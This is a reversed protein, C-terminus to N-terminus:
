PLTLRANQEPADALRYDTFSVKEGVPRNRVMMIKVMGNVDVESPLWLGDAVRTQQYFIKAGEAIRAMVWGIAVTDVVKANAKTWRVDQKDIWLTANIKSFLKSKQDKPQYGPKPTCKVVYNPRGNVTEEPLLEFDFASPVERLFRRNNEYEALKRQQAEPTAHEAVFKKYKEDEKRQQDPPLPEGNRTLVKEFPMGGVVTIQSVTIKKGSDTKEIERQTYNYKLAAHYDKEYNAISQAVIQRADTAAAIGATFLILLPLLRRM